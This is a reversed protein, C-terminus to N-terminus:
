RDLDIDKDPAIDPTGNARSAYDGRLWAPYREQQREVFLQRQGAQFGSGRQSEDTVANLQEALNPLHKALTYGENFGKVFEPDPTDHEEM